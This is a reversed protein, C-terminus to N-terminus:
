APRVNKVSRKALEAEAHEVEAKTRAKDWGLINAAIKSTELIADPTLLGEMTIATRRLLLDALHRVNENACIYAIEGTNYDPLSAMPKDKTTDAFAQVAVAKTGYRDLLTDGRIGIRGTMAKRSTEDRPYDRGGGIPVDVTSVIRAKGLLTLVAECSQESFARFTTWKGGILSLVLDNTGPM